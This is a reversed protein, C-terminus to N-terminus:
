EGVGRGARGVAIQVLAIRRAPAGERHRPVGDETVLDQVGVTAACLRHEEAVQLWRWEYLGRTLVPRGM